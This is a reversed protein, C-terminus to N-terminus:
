LKILFLFLTMEIREKLLALATAAIRPSRPRPASHTLSQSLHQGSIRANKTPTEVSKLQTPLKPPPPQGTPRQSILVLNGHTPTMGPPLLNNPSLNPNRSGWSGRPVWSSKPSISHPTCISGGTPQPGRPPRQRMRRSCESSSVRKAVQAEGVGWRGNGFTPPPPMPFGHSKLASIALAFVPPEPAPAPGVHSALRAESGASPLEAGHQGGGKQKERM